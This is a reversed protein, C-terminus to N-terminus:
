PSVNNRLCPVCPTPKDSLLFPVLGDESLPGQMCSLLCDRPPLWRAPVELLGRDEIKEAISCRSFIEIFSSDLERRICSKSSCRKCPHFQLVSFHCSLYRCTRSNTPPRIGNFMFSERKINPITAAQEPSNDGFRFACLGPFGEVTGNFIQATPPKIDAPSRRFCESSGAQPPEKM